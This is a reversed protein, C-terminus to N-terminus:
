VWGTHFHSYRNHLPEPKYNSSNRYAKVEPLDMLNIYVSYIGPYCEASICDKSFILHQDIYEALTFDSFTLADGVLWKGDNSNFIAEIMKLHKPLTDQLYIASQKEFLESTKEAQYDDSKLESPCEYWECYTVHFFDDMWDKMVELAMIANSTQIVTKGQLEYKSGLYFLIAHTQTLYVNEKENIYYPLNPAAFPLSYKENLWCSKDFDPPSGVQYRRDEYEEGVYNLMLRISGALARHNWYGLISM